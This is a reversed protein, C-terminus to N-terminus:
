GLDGLRTRRSSRAPCVEAVAHGARDGEPFSSGVPSTGTAKGFPEGAPSSRTTQRQSSTATSMSRGRGLKTSARTPTGWDFTWFKWAHSRSEKTHSSSDSLKAAVWPGNDIRVEVAAIPAGWAAGMIGYRSGCRTVKALASKLRNHSVTSFTWLTQGNRQEERISVYDRAM